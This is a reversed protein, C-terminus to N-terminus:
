AITLFEAVAEREMRRPSLEAPPTVTGKKM